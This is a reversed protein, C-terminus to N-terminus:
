FLSSWSPRGDIFIDDQRKRREGRGKREGRVKKRKEKWQM